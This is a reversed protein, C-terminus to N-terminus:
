VKYNFHEIGYKVVAKYYVCAMRLAKDENTYWTDNTDIESIMNHLFIIDAKEKDEESGGVEYLWDHIRCSEYIDIGALNDPILKGLWNDGGCGNGKFDLPIDHPVILKM